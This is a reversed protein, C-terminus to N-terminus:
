LDSKVINGGCIVAKVNIDGDFICIDADYGEKILGKKVNLNMSKLPNLTIMKVADCISLGNKVMTRILRDSTAVSGAFASRDELKAVGDEIIVPLPDDKGGLFSKNTNQGAARMADTILSIRDSNKFKVAYSLLSSPIHCGDAIIEVNMDDIYYAAELVGPIRFGGKRTITSMCSYLHTIHKFGWGYGTHEVYTGQVNYGDYKATLSISKSLKEAYVAKVGYGFIKTMIDVLHEAYFYFGGYPSDTYIPSVISGGRLEGCVKNEVAEALEITEQLAACTSGGCLRIGKEKATRMFEVADEERCTIPKDIFMPIGSEIYPKAYKFHNDGHRATIMIGDVKGVADTFDDMIPAGFEDHLKKAAEPENSYIGIVEIEPYKGENILKLFANAHSNECGLIAIKYM